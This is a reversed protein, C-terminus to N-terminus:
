DKELVGVDEPDDILLAVRATLSLSTSPDGWFAIDFTGTILWTAINPEQAVM